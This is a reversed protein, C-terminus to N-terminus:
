ATKLHPLQYHIASWSYSRSTPVYLSHGTRALGKVVYLALAVGAFTLHKRGDM